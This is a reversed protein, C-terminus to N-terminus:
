GQPWHDRGDSAPNPAGGISRYPTRGFETKLVVLTSDLDIKGPAVEGPAKILTALKQLLNWLHVSTRTAQSGRVAGNAMADHVDYPFFSGDLGGDAVFVHRASEAGTRSLLYAALDLQAHTTGQGFMPAAFQTDATARACAPRPLLSTPGASLLTRLVPADFLADTAAEYDAFARSRTVSGSAPYRLSDRYRNRYHDLLADGGVSANSRSLSAVVDVFDEGVILRLPRSSGPHAGVADAMEIAGDIATFATPLVYSYPLPHSGPVEVSRARRQIIAGLGCAGPRGLRRGSINYPIAAEHPELDHALVVVRMRAAIDARWLPLAFPGLHVAKQAADVGHAQTVLGAPTTGCTAADSWELATVDGDFGRTSGGDPRFYFSEYPALGGHLFIELV